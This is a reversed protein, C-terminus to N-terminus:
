FCVINHIFIHHPYLCLYRLCRKANFNIRVRVIFIEKITSEFAYCFGFLGDLIYIYVHYIMNSFAQLVDEM